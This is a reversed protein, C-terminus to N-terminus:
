KNVTMRGETLEIRNYLAIVDEVKKAKSLASEFEDSNEYFLCYALDMYGSLKTVAFDKDMNDKKVAKRYYKDLKEISELLESKQVEIDSSSLGIKTEFRVLFTNQIVQMKKAIVIGLEHSNYETINEINIPQVYTDFVFKGESNQGSVNVSLFLTFLLVVFLSKMIKMKKNM